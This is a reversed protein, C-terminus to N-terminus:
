FYWYRATSMTVLAIIILIFEIREIRELETELRHMEEAQAASPPGGSAGIAAGLAGLKGARPGIFLMGMLFSLVGAVSGITFGIGPGSTLWSMSLGGSAFWLMILGAVTCVLSNIQMFLPYKRRGVYTQMFVPGVPGILQVTPKVHTVYVIAAGTWLVGAVIHLVRLFLIAYIEM